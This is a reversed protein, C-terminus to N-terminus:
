AAPHSWIVWDQSVRYVKVGGPLEEPPMDRESDLFCGTFRIGDQEFTGDLAAVTARALAKAQAYSSGWNDIQVSVGTLGSAGRYLYQRGATVRQLTQAPLGSGQPREIWVVRTSVLAALGANALLHARLAEEM